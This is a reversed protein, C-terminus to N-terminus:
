VNKTANVVHAAVNGHVSVTCWLLRLGGHSKSHVRATSTWLRRALAHLIEHKAQVRLKGHHLATLACMTLLIPGCVGSEPRVQDAIVPFMARCAAFATGEHVDWLVDLCQRVAGTVAAGQESSLQQCPESSKLAAQAPSHIVTQESLQSPPVHLRQPAQLAAASSRAAVHGHVLGTPEAHLKEAHVLWTATHHM